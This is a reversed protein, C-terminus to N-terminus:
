QPSASRILPVRQVMPRSNDSERLECHLTSSVQLLVKRHLPKVHHEAKQLITWFNSSNVRSCCAQLLASCPFLHRATACCILVHGGWLMSKKSRGPVKFLNRLLVRAPPCSLIHCPSNTHASRKLEVCLGHSPHTISPQM